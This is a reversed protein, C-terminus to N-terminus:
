DESLRLPSIETPLQDEFTLAIVRATQRRRWRLLAAIAGVVVIGVLWVPMAREAIWILTTGMTTFGVFSLWGLLIM